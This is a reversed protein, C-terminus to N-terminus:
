YKFCVDIDANCGLGRTSIIGELYKSHSPKFGLIKGYQISDVNVGQRNVVEYNSRMVATVEAKGGTELAYAALTGVGGGGVILVRTKSSSM